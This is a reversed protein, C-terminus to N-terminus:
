REQLRQKDEKVRLLGTRDSRVTWELMRIKLPVRRATLLSPSGRVFFPSPAIRTSFSRSTRMGALGDPLGDSHESAM